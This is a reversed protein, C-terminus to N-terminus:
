SQARLIAASSGSCKKTGTQNKGDCKIVFILDIQEALWYSVITQESYPSDKLTGEYKKSPDPKRTPGKKTSPFLQSM